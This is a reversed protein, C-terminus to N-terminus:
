QPTGSYSLDLGTISASGGTVADADMSVQLHFMVSSGTAVLGKNTGWVIPQKAAMLDSLRMVIPAYSGGGTVLPTMLVSVKSPDTIGTMVPTTPVHLSLVLATTGVNKVALVYGGNSTPQAAGGPIINNFDYGPLTDSYTTGDRSILINATATEVTNGALVHGDSQLAAFTVVSTIVGVASLVSIARVIPLLKWANRGHTKSRM